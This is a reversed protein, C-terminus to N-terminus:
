PSAPDADSSAQDLPGLGLCYRIATASPRDASSVLLLLPGVKRSNVAESCGGAAM